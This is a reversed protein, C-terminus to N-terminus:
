WANQMTNCLIVNCQTVNCRSMKEGKNKRHLIPLNGNHLSNLILISCRILNNHDSLFSQTSWYCYVIFSVRTRMGYRDIFVVAVAVALVTASIVVAFATGFLSRGRICGLIDFRLHKSQRLWYLTRLQWSDGNTGRPLQLVCSSHTDERNQHFSTRPVQRVTHCSCYYCRYGYTSSHHFTHWWWEFRRYPHIESAVDNRSCSPYLRYYRNSQRCTKRVCPLMWTYHCRNSNTKYVPLCM